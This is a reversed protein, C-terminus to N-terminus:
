LMSTLTKQLLTQHSGTPVYMKKSKRESFDLLGGRGQRCWKQEVSVAGVVAIRETTAGCASRGRNRRHFPLRAPLHAVLLLCPAEAPSRRRRAPRASPWAPGCATLELYPRVVPIPLSSHGGPVPLTRHQAPTTRVTHAPTFNSLPYM